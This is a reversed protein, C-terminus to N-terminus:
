HANLPGDLLMLLRQLGAYHEQVLKSNGSDGAKGLKATMAGVGSVLQQLRAAENAVLAPSRAGAAATVLDRITDAHSQVESLKADRIAAELQAQERQIREWIVKPATGAPLGAADGPSPTPAPEMSPTGGPSTQGAGASPEEKAKKGCSAAALAVLLSVQSATAMPRVRSRLRM